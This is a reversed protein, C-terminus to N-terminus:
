YFFINKNFRKLRSVEEPDSYYKWWGQYEIPHGSNLEDMRNELWESEELLGQDQMLRKIFWRGGGYGWPRQPLNTIYDREMMVQIDGDSPSSVYLRGAGFSNSVGINDLYIYRNNFRDKGLPRIRLTTYRRM